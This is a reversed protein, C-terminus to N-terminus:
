RGNRVFLGATRSVDEFQRGGINRYLRCDHVGTVFLDVYGDNDFDGAAVGTMYGSRGLGLETTVDTFHLGGDNRYLAPAGSAGTFFLDTKGDNNYDFAAMGGAM